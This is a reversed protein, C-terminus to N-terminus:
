PNPGPQPSVPGGGGGSKSNRAHVVLEIIEGLRAINDKIIQNGQDERKQHFDRIAAYPPALFEESFATTIDGQLLGIRSLIEKAGDARTIKTGDVSFGGVITKIELTVLNHAGDIVKQIFDSM